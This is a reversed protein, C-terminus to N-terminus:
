EGSGVKKYIIYFSAVDEGFVAEPYFGLLEQNHVHMTKESPFSVDLTFTIAGEEYYEGPERVEQTIIYYDMDVVYLDESVKNWYSRYSSIHIYCGEYEEDYASIKMIFGGTQSAFMYIQRECETLAVERTTGDNLLLSVSVSEWDGILPDLLLDNDSSCSFFLITILFLILPKKMIPISQFETHTLTTM